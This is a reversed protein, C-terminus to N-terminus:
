KLNILYDGLKKPSELRVINKDSMIEKFQKTGIFLKVGFKHRFMELDNYDNGAVLVESKKIGLKRLVIMLSSAKNVGKSNIYYYGENTTVNLESNTRLVKKDLLKIIIMCPSIKKTQEVAEYVNNILIVNAFSGYKSEIVDVENKHLTYLMAKKGPTKNYFGFFYINNKNIKLVSFVQQIEKITLPNYFIQRGELTIIRGGHELITPFDKSLILNSDIGFASDLRGYGRGSVISVKFNSRLLHLLGNEVSLPLKNHTVLTGDVDFFAYKIKSKM